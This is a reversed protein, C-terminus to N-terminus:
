QRSCGTRLSYWCTEAATNQGGEMGRKKLRFDSEPHFGM